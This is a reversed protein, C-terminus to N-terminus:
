SAFGSNKQRMRHEEDKQQIAQDMEEQMQQTVRNMEEGLIKYSEESARLAEKTSWRLFLVM